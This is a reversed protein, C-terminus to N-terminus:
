YIRISQLIDQFIKSSNDLRPVKFQGGLRNNKSLWNYFVGKKVDILEPPLLLYDKYRKSEYDSNLKKLSDDLDRMFESKSDPLINFEIIWRHVAIAENIFFPSVIYNSITCKHKETCIKLAEDANEVMLEEGVANLYSQTRGVIKIRYPDVSTFRVTDGVIYRWLGANTSIVLVYTTNLSVDKLCISERNSKKFKDLPIFEYFIGYDLMLLLDKKQIQDQIGFFGESANYGELYNMNEVPILNDFQNKYPSFNVGGHMYLELNPWVEQISDAGSKEIIKNLLVLVWSCVGTINTIDERLAQDTILDLKLEWDKLLATQLDPSRHMNVWFPFNNILIASLDGDTYRYTNNHELSGGLMLGKGNYLNTEPFNNCYLSLMDKGGKFHCDELSDKSIPIYKSKDNTTGSSRAFWEIKGPWLVNKENERVRKIYSFLEEYTRVPVQKRFDIISRIKHFKHDIGFSTSKGKEILSSFVEKQVDHPFKKFLNIQHIRKRM